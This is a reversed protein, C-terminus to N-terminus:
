ISIYLIGKFYMKLLVLGKSALKKVNRCVQPKSLFLFPLMCFYFQQLTPPVPPPSYFYVNVTIIGLINEIWPVQPHLMKNDTFLKSLNLLYQM